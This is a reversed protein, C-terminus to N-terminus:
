FIFLFDFLPDHIKRQDSTDKKHDNFSNHGVDCMGMGNQHIAHKIYCVKDHDTRKKKENRQKVTRYCFAAWVSKRLHFGKKENDLVGYKKNDRDLQDDVTYLGNEIAAVTDISTCDRDKFKDNKEAAYRKIQQKRIEAFAIFGHGNM